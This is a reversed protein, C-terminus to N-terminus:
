APEPTPRFVIRERLIWTLAFSAVIAGLKSLRPDFQWATGLAVIGTTLALGALASGAFLAKQVTRRAGSRLADAPFVTRSSLLWHAVIGLGYGITAALAPALGLHLLALFTGLDVGLALASATVYRVLVHDTLQRLMPDPLTAGTM